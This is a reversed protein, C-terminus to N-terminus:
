NSFPRHPVIPEGTLIQQRLSVLKKTWHSGTSIGRNAAQLADQNKGMLALAEVLYSWVKGDEPSRKLFAMYDRAARGLQGIAMYCDARFRVAHGFRGNKVFRSFEKAAAQYQGARGLIFARHYYLELNQPQLKIAQNIFQLAPKHSGKKKSLHEAQRALKNAQEARTECFVENSLLHMLIFILCGLFCYINKKKRM